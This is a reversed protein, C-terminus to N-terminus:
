LVWQNYKGRHFSKQLWLHERTRLGATRKSESCIVSLSTYWNAFGEYDFSMLAPIRRITALVSLCTPSEEATSKTQIILSQQFRLERLSLYEGANCNLVFFKNIQDFSNLCFLFCILFVGCFLSFFIRNLHNRGNM